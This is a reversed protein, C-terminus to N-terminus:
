DMVPDDPPRHRAQEPEELRERLYDAAIRDQETLQHTYRNTTPVTTHGLRAMRQRQSIVPDLETSVFHRMSHLHLDAPLGAKSRASAFAKSMAEPHPPTRGDPSSSFVFGDIDLVVECTTALDSTRDRLQRLADLSVADLAVARESKETKPSRVTAGGESAVVGEDIQVTANSFDIDSWRLGCLEGRRAGTIAALRCFVGFRESYDSAAALVARVEGPDPSRVPTSRDQRSWVPLEADGVPNPLRHSSWRRALGLARHLVARAQRVSSESAGQEKMTRFFREFDLPTAKRIQLKGVGPLIHVAILSKYRRVTTPSLDSWKEKAWLDIAQGVTTAPGLENPEESRLVTVLRALETDAERASGRFTISRQLPRGKEDRGVYIRLEYVDPGKSRRTGRM